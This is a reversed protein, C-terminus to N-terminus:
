TSTSSRIASMFAGARVNEESPRGSSSCRAAEDADREEANVFHAVPGTGLLAVDEELV